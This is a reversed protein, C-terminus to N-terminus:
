ADFLKGDMILPDLTEEEIESLMEECQKLSYRVFELSEEKTSNELMELFLKLSNINNRMTGVAFKKAAAENM